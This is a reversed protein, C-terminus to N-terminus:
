YAMPHLLSSWYRSELALRIATMGARPCLRGGAGIEATISGNRSELRANDMQDAKVDVSGNKASLDAKGTVTTATLAVSGNRANLPVTASVTTGQVALVGSDSQLEVSASITDGTVRFDPDTSVYGETPMAGTCTVTLVGDKIVTEVAIDGAEKVGIYSFESSRDHRLGGGFCQSAACGCQGGDCRM